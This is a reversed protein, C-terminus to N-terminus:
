RRERPPGGIRSLTSTSAAPRLPVDPAPEDQGEDIPAEMAEAVALLLDELALELQEIEGSSRKGSSKGSPWSRCSAIRLRLAQVLQDPGAIDGLIKANEAQWLRL